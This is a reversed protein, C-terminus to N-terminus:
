SVTVFNCFSKIRCEDCKPKRSECVTRGFSIFLHNLLIWKNKEYLNMLDFEIKVPEKSETLALRRSIRSVHTDVVIGPINYCHGLVVNATKRGVGPLLLLNEMNDPVTDNFKDHIMCAADKIHKAKAKYFGTSYINKELENLDARIFDGISKYKKFLVATVINVREDTCQASLITAVLLEFPTSFNLQIKSNPYLDNLIDFVIGARKKKDKLSENKFNM